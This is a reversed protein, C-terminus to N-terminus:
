ANSHASGRRAGHQRHARGDRQHVEDRRVARGASSGPAGDGRAGAQGARDHLLEHQRLARESAGGGGAAAAVRAREAAPRGGGAAANQFIACPRPRCAAPRGRPLPGLEPSRRCVSAPRTAGAGAGASAQLAAEGRVDGRAMRERAGRQSGGDAPFPYHLLPPSSPRRLASPHPVGRSGGAPRGAAGARCVLLGARGAASEAAPRTGRRGPRLWAERDPGPSSTLRRPPHAPAPERPRRGQQGCRPLLRRGQMCWGAAAAPGREAPPRQFLPPHPRPPPRRPPPPPRPPWAPSPAPAPRLAVVKATPRPGRRNPACGRARKRVWERTRLHRAGKKAEGEWRAREGRAWTLPGGAKRRGSAVRLSAVPGTRVAPAPPGCCTMASMARRSTRGMVTEFLCHGM